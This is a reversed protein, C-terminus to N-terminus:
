SKFCVSRRMADLTPEVLLVHTSCVDGYMLICSKNLLNLGYNQKECFVFPLNFKGKSLYFCNKNRTVLKRVLNVFNVLCTIRLYCTRRM